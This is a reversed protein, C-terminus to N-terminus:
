KWEGDVPVLMEPKRKTYGTKLVESVATVSVTRGKHEGTLIEAHVETTTGVEASRFVVVKRVVLRAGPNMIGESDAPEKQRLTMLSGQLLYAARKLSYVQGVVFDTMPAPNKTVDTTSSCSVVAILLLSIPLAKM